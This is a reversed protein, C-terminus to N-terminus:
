LRSQVHLAEVATQYSINNDPEHYVKLMTMPTVSNNACCFYDTCTFTDGPQWRVFLEQTKGDENYSEIVQGIKWETLPIYTICRKHKKANGVRDHEAPIYHKLEVYM